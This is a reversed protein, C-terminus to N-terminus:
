QKGGMNAIEIILSMADDMAQSRTWFRKQNPKILYITDKDYYRFQKQVYINKGKEQISYKNLEKLLPTIEAGAKVEVPKETDSFQLVVLNLPSFRQIDYITINIKHNTESYFDTLEQRLMQAYAENEDRLTHKFGVSNESQEFLDLSFKLTDQILVQEKENINLIKLFVNLLIYENNEIIQQDSLLLLLQNVIEDFSQTITENEVNEGTSIAPIEKLENL